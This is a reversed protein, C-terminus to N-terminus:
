YVRLCGGRTRAGEHCSSLGGVAVRAVGSSGAMASLQATLGTVGPAVAASNLGVLAQQLGVVGAFGLAVVAALGTLIGTLTLIAVGWGLVAGGVDTSAFDTLHGIASSLGNIFDGVPGLGNSGIADLLAAFNNGLVQV